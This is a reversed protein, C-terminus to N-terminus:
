TKPALCCIIRKGEMKPAKEVAGVGSLSEIMKNIVAFGRDRHALERQGKFELNLQVKMSEELFKKAQNIKTEVDHDAIGPRLRLEKLQIASERQKRAADKKKIQQEYKFRGYDMIRCVPPQSNPVIEVLDLGEDQALRRAHDTPMIGLQEEERIVRVQPVRINWNIRHEDQRRPPYRKDFPPM